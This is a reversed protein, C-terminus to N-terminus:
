EKEAWQLRTDRSFDLNEDKLRLLLERVHTPLQDISLPVTPQATRIYAHRDRTYSTMADYFFLGGRVYDLDVENVHSSWHDSTLGPIHEALADSCEPLTGMFSFLVDLEKRSARLHAPIVGPGDTALVALHHQDVAYWILDLDQMEEDTYYTM